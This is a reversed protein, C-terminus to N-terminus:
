FVKSSSEDMIASWANEVETPIGIPSTARIVGGQEGIIRDLFRDMSWLERRVNKEPGAKEQQAERTQKLRPWCSIQVTDNQYVKEFSSMTRCSMAPDQVVVMSRPSRIGNEELVKQAESADAGCNNSRDSVLIRFGHDQSGTENIKLKYFREAM